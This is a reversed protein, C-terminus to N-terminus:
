DCRNERFSALLKRRNREMILSTLILIVGGSIFFISRPLLKFFYDFYRAIIDFSFFILGINIYSQSQRKYGIFILGIVIFIYLVNAIIVCLFRIDRDISSYSSSSSSSSASFAVFIFVTIFLVTLGIHETFRYPLPHKATVRAATSYIFIAGIGTYYWVIAKSGFTESYVNFTMIMGVTLTIIIGTILYPANLENFRGSEKHVLGVVWFTLGVIFYLTTVVFVSDHLFWYRGISLDLGLWLLLDIIVLTLISKLRLLYAIPMVGLGWMLVGNSYNAKVNYIQAILHIGAGFIISGLLILAAGVKPYSKKEFGLYYGISYSSLMSGFIIALKVSKPIVSWNSAIFLIVGVGALVAGLVSLISAMKGLSIPEQASAASKPTITQESHGAALDKPADHYRQLILDRQHEDIIGDRLWQRVEDTLAEAFTKHKDDGKM